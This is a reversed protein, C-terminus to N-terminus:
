YFFLKLILFQTKLNVHLKVKVKYKYSKVKSACKIEKEKEKLTWKIWKKVAKKKQCFHFDM